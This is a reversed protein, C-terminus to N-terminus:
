LNRLFIFEDNDFYTICKQYIIKYNDIRIKNRLRAKDIFIFKTKSDKVYEMINEQNLNNDYNIGMNKQLILNNVLPSNTVIPINFNSNNMYPYIEFYLNHINIMAKDSNQIQLLNEKKLYTFNLIFTSIFFFILIHAIKIRSKRLFFMILLIIISVKFAYIFYMVYKYYGLETTFVAINFKFYFM